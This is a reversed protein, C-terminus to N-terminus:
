KFLVGLVLPVLVLVWFIILLTGLLKAMKRNENNESDNQKRKIELYTVFIIAALVGIRNFLPTDVGFNSYLYLIAGSVFVGIVFLIIYRVPQNPTLSGSLFGKVLLYLIGTVILLTILLAVITEM